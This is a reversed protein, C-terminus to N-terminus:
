PRPLFYYPIHMNLAPFFEDHSYRFNLKGLVKKSNLNDPHHGASLGSVGLTTFAYQIVATAAEVALGRGWFKPRLHFGLEPVNQEPRYPRLGCCGVHEHGDLSLIPWYQFNHRRMREIEAALKEAVAEDSFPGGFHRTVEADGWLERARPFDDPTWCRFGLRASTLFYPAPAPATM